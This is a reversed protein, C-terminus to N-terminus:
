RALKYILWQNLSVGENAADEKLKKHLSKPMRLVVKGSYADLTRFYEKYEVAESPDEQEAAEIAALDEPTPEEPELQEIAAIRKEIEDMSLQKRM